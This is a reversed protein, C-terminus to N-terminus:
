SVAILDPLLLSQFRSALFLRAATKALAKWEPTKIHAIWYGSAPGYLPLLLYQLEDEVVTRSLFRSADTIYLLYRSMTLNSPSVCVVQVSSSDITSSDRWSCTGARFKIRRNM